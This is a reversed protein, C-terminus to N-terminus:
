AAAQELARRVMTRVLDRRYQATDNNDEMPDVVAAACDAAAAFADPGPAQGTLPFAMTPVLSQGGALVCGDQPALRALLAVAQEITTPAYHRFPAPKM